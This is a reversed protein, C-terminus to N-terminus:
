ATDEFGPPAPRGEPWAALAKFLTGMQDAATLRELADAIAGAEGPRAAALQAARQGIGLRALFAGQPATATTLPALGEAVRDSHVQHVSVLREVGLHAAIRARNEAVSQATDQSGQGGNLAAYIGTSVGGHRTFFGHTVGHLNDATILTLTM